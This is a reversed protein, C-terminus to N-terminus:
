PSVQDSLQSDIVAPSNDFRLQEGTEHALGKRRLTGILQLNYASQEGQVM